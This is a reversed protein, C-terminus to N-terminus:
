TRKTCFVSVGSATGSVLVKGYKTSSLQSAPIEAYFLGTNNAVPSLYIESGSDAGDFVLRVPNGSLTESDAGVLYAYVVLTGSTEEHIKLRRSRYCSTYSSTNPIYYPILPFNIGKNSTIWSVNNIDLYEPSNFDEVLITKYTINGGSTISKINLSNILNYGAEKVVSTKFPDRVITSIPRIDKVNDFQQTEGVWKLNVIRLRRDLAREAYAFVVVNTSELNVGSCVIKDIRVFRGETMFDYHSTDLTITEEIDGYITLSISHSLTSKLVFQLRVPIDFEQSIAYDSFNGLTQLPCLVEPEKHLTGDKNLVIEFNKDFKSCDSFSVKTNQLSVQLGQTILTDNSDQEKFNIENVASGQTVPVLTKTVSMQITVKDGNNVDSTDEDIVLKNTGKVLHFALEKGNCIATFVANPYCDKLDVVKLGDEISVSFTNDESEYLTGPVGAVGNDKSVIMGRTILQDYITLNNSTLDNLGISHPVSSSGTGVESRHSIDCLSFWPRNFSYLKQTADLVYSNSQYKIVALCVSDKLVNSTLLNYQEVTLFRICKSVDEVIFFVPYAKGNNSLRKESSGKLTYTYLVVTDQNIDPINVSFSDLEVFDGNNTVLSGSTFSISNGEISPYLSSDSTESNATSVIGFNGNCLLKISKRQKERLYEFQKQIDDYGIITNFSLQEM